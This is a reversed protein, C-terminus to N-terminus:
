DTLFVLVGTTGLRELVQGHPNQILFRKGRASSEARLHLLVAIGELTIHGVDALDLRIERVGDDLYHRELDEKVRATPLDGLLEGRLHVVVRAGEREGVEYELM